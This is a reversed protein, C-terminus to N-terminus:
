DNYKHKKLIATKLLELASCKLLMEIILYIFSGGVVFVAVLTWGKLSQQLFLLFPIFSLSGILNKIISSKIEFRISTKRLVMIGSVLLVLVEAIISAISAGVAGMYPILICNLIFNSLTGVLMSYLFYKDYGMGILIQTGTLNNFGIIIVLFSLIMMPIVSGVFKVGFFLPAFTPAICAMGIATPFALFSVVSFSKSVLIDINDYDRNKMYYSIRPVAVLSLSTVASLIIRSIHMASTYYGTEEYDKIFGIMLTDLVTYISVAISSAFLIMLPSMHQKLGQLTFRPKIEMRWMRLFNWINALVGGLISLIVYIILDDKERVFVFLCIVSLTRVVLSVKTIVGFDEIGQYYWNIKFPALYIAFGAILFILNNESLQGIAVITLIYIISVVLTTITAISMLQSILQSLAEKDDKLKAVERVGYTPIGLMAVLAFYGAYTNSFNFLGIGDPELVRSVYPATILPFVVAALNLLVNYFTNQTISQAM